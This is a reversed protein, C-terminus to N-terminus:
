QVSSEPGHRSRVVCSMCFSQSVGIMCVANYRLVHNMEIRRMLMECSIMSPLKIPEVM